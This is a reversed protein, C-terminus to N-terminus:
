LTAGTAISEVNMSIEAYHVLASGFVRYEYIDLVPMTVYQVGAGLSDRGEILAQLVEIVILLASKETAESDDVGFYGRIIYPYTLYFMADTPDSADQFPRNELEMGTCTITWGRIQTQAGVDYKFRDLFVDYTSAWREYDHVQGVNTVAELLTKINARITAETM